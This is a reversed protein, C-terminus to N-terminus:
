KGSGQAALKTVGAEGSVRGDVRADSRQGDRLLEAVRDKPEHATPLQSMCHVHPTGM